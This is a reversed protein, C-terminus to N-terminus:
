LLGVPWSVLTVKLILNREGCRDLNCRFTFRSRYAHLSNKSNIPASRLRPRAPFRVYVLSWSLHFAFQWAYIGFRVVSLSPTLTRSPTQYPTQLIAIKWQM